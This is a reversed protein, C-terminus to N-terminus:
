VAKDLLQPAENGISHIISFTSESFRKILDLQPKLRNKGLPQNAYYNHNHSFIHKLVEANVNDHNNKKYIWVLHTTDFYNMWVVFSARELNSKM